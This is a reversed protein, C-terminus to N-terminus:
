AKWHALRERLIKRARYLRTEIAKPSCNLAAAIEHYGLDQYEFLIVVTRLDHPLQQIHERVASALDNREANDAPTDGSAPFTNEADLADGDRSRHLAVTPHREQWRAHNRCLNAAIRFLWTSFKATPQYRIRNVYVHVFTEQALDLADEKDGTYRYIFAVLSEQWRQMLEGLALDEGGRLRLMAKIDADSESVSHV